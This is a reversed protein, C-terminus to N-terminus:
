KGERLSHLVPFIFDEWIQPFMQEADRDDVGKLKGAVISADLDRKINAIVEELREEQPREEQPHANQGRDGYYLAQNIFFQANLDGLDAREKLKQFCEEESTSGYGQFVLYNVWKQADQYGLAAYAELDAFREERPREHQDLEGHYLVEGLMKQAYKSGTAARAKLWKFRVKFYEEESDEESDEEFDLAQSTIGSVLQKEADLDGQSVREELMARREIDSFIQLGLEGSKLAKNLQKQAYRDGRSAREELIALREADSRLGLPLVGDLRIKTLWKQAMLDGQAAMRKIEQMKKRMNFEDSIRIRGKLWAKSLRKQADRNGGDAYTTLEKLREKESREIQGLDGWYLAAVVRKQAKEHGLDAAKRYAEFAKQAWNYTQYVRGLIYHGQASSEPFAKSIMNQCVEMTDPSIHEERRSSELLIVGGANSLTRYGRWADTSMQAERMLKPLVEEQLGYALGYYHSPSKLQLESLSLSPSGYLNRKFLAEWLVPQNCIEHFSKNTGGMHILDKHGLFELICNIVATIPFGSFSGLDDSVLDDSPKTRKSPNKDEPNKRKLSAGANIEDPEMAFALSSLCSASIFVLATTTVLSRSFSSALKKM